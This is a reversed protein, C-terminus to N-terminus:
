PFPSPEHFKGCFFRPFHQQMCDGKRGVTLGFDEGGKERPPPRSESEEMGESRMAKRDEITDELGEGGRTIFTM